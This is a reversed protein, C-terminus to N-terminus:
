GRTLQKYEDVSILLYNGATAVTAPYQQAWSAGLPSQECSKEGILSIGVERIQMVGLIEYLEYITNPKLHNNAVSTNMLTGIILDSKGDSAPRTVFRAIGTM